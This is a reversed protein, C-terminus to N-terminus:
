RAARHGMFLLQIVVFLLLLSSLDYIIGRAVPSFKLLVAM